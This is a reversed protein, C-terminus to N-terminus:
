RKGPRGPVVPGRSGPRGLRVYSLTVCGRLVTRKETPVNKATKGRLYQAHLFQALRQDPQTAPLERPLLKVSQYVRMERHEKYTAKLKFAICGPFQQCIEIWLKHSDTPVILIRPRRKLRIEIGANAIVDAFPGPLPPVSSASLDEDSATILGRERDCLFHLGVEVRSCVAYLRAERNEGVAPLAVRNPSLKEDTEALVYREERGRLNLPVGSKEAQGEAPQDRNFGRKELPPVPHSPRPGPIPFLPITV